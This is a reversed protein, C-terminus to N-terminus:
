KLIKIKNVMIRERHTLIDGNHDYYVLDPIIGKILIKKGRYKELQDKTLQVYYANIRYGSKTQNTDIHGITKVKKTPLIKITSQTFSSGLIFFLSCSFIIKLLHIPIKM